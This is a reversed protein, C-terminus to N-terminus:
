EFSEHFDLLSLRIQMVFLGRKLVKGLFRCTRTVDGLKVHWWWLKETAM